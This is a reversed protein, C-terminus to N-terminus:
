NYTQVGIITCETTMAGYRDSRLSERMCSMQVIRSGDHSGNEKCRWMPFMKRKKYDATTTAQNIWRLLLQRDLLLWANEWMRHMCNQNGIQGMVLREISKGTSVRHNWHINDFPREIIDKHYLCMNFTTYCYTHSTFTKNLM